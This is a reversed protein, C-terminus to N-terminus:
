GYVQRGKAWTSIVQGKFQKGIYPSIKHRTVLDSPNLTWTADLDILTLDADMGSLISGKTALGFRQAINYSTLAVLQQLPLGRQHHGVSLMLPLSCQCGAIGGWISFFDDGQKLTDPAPSHDSAIFDIQGALLTDWLKDQEDQSRIPPACKAPAGLRIVDKDTLTLYHPCTECTVDVGRAKAQTILHVGKSSSVHVIHLKCGTEEAFLLARQIAECEAIIPRSALYDRASVRGEAIAKQALHTTIEDNEAHVAVIAGHKALIDMGRYLTYDDVASFDDIGSNSMFAKFGIVGKALLAELQNLNDPTLGGWLYANILSKEDTLQRKEDFAHASTTPPTSNLPMDFFSTYGGKALAQSGTALGEWNTRGPENFHVHPDIGGPILVKDTADIEIEASDSLIPAVAVIVGNEIAVDALGDQTTDIVRAQRIIFNVM